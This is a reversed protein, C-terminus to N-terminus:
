FHLHSIAGTEMSYWFVCMKENEESMVIIKINDHLGFYGRAVYLIKDLIDEIYETKHALTYTVWKNFVDIEIKLM